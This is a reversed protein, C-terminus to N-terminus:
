KERVKKTFPKKLVKKFIPQEPARQQGAPPPMPPRSPPQQGPPSRQPTEAMLTGCKHCVSATLANLAGCFSCPKSGMKRMEEEEKLWAEFTVYTPQRRWWEQFEKESPPHGLVRAAEARYKNVVKDYQKRMRDRYDGGRAKGTTFEVGCEPCSKVDMPIWAHCSSCKAMEKEFETGCKPCATASQSIFAGCEGCEVLRSVGVTRMYGAVAFAVLLFIAFIVMLMWLPLNVGPINMEYWPVARSISLQLSAGQVTSTDTSVQLTWQGAPADAPIVLPVTFLGDQSTYTVGPQYFTGQQDRLIVTVRMNPIPQGTPTDVSGTVLITEGLNFSQGTSPSSIFVQGEPPVIELTFDVRNNNENIEPLLNYPDAILILTYNGAAISRTVEMDFSANGGAPIMTVETLVLLNEETVSDLYLAVEGGTSTNGLNYVVVHVTFSRGQVARTTNYDSARLELDPKTLVQVVLDVRNNRFDLDTNDATDNRTLARITLNRPGPVDPIWTLFVTVSGDLPVDTEVSDVLIGEERLEVVAGIANAKGDNHVTVNVGVIAGQVPARSFVVDVAEVRLDPWDFMVPMLVTNDMMAATPESSAYYSIGDVVVSANVRYTSNSWGQTAFREQALARYLAVGTPAVITGSVYSAYYLDDSAPAPIPSFTLTQPNLRSVTFNVDTVPDGVGDVAVISLWWYFSVKAGGLIRDTWWDGEGPFTVNTLHAYQTGSFVVSSAIEEPFTANRIDFDRTGVNGDDSLLALSVGQEFTPTWLFSTGTNNFILDSDALTMNRVGAGAGLAQLDGELRGNRLDVQSSGESYIIGRGEVSNLFLDSGLTNLRGNDRLYVVLPLNSGIAGDVVTLSGEGEIIIYHKGTVPDGQLLTLSAGTVTIDATITLTGDLVIDYDLTADSAWTYSMGPSPWILDGLTATRKLNNSPESLNPYADFSLNEYVVEGQFSSRIRYNGIFHSNPMTPDFSSGNVWETLLPIRARGPSDTVNWNLATRGMYNLLVAGPVVGNGNDPFYALQTGEPLLRAELYAGSVASGFRDVVLADLWRHVYFSSGPSEPVLAPIWDTPLALNSQAEDLTMNYIYVQASDITRIVNHQASSDLFDVGVFSDIITFTATDEVTINFRSDSVLVTDNEYLRDVSSGALVVQSSGTFTMAPADDNDDSDLVFDEIEEPTFGTIVSDRVDLIADGTTTLTGPHKVVSGNRLLLTGAVTVTLKLYDSLQNPETTLVSNDLILSGHGSGGDQINLFYIHNSDQLFTLGGNNIELVGGSQITVNGDVKFIVGDYVNGSGSVIWDGNIVVVTAASPEVSILGFLLTLLLTATLIPVASRRLPRNAGPIMGTVGLGRRSRIDDDGM